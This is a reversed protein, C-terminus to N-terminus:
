CKAGGKVAPYCILQGAKANACTFNSLPQNITQIQPASYFNLKGKQFLNQCTDGSVLKYPGALKHGYCSGNCILTYALDAAFGASSSIMFIMMASFCVLGRM